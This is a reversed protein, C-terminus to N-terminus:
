VVSKRDVSPRLKITEKSGPLSPKPHPPKATVKPKQIMVTDEDDLNVGTPADDIKTEAAGAGGLGPMDMEGELLASRDMSLTDEANEDDAAPPPAEKKLPKLKITKRGVNDGSSSTATPSPTMSAGGPDSATSVSPSISDLVEVNGSETKRMGLDSGTFAPAMTTADSPRIASDTASNLVVKNVDSKPIRATQDDEGSQPKKDPEADDKKIDLEEPSMSITEESDRRDDEDLPEAVEMDDGVEMDDDSGGELSAVPKIEPRVPKSIKVTQDDEGALEPKDPTMPATVEMDENNEIDAM